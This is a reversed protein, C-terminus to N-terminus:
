SSIRHFSFPSALVTLYLYARYFVWFNILWEFFYFSSSFFSTGCLNWEMQACCCKTSIIQWITSPLIRKDCMTFCKKKAQGVLEVCNNAKRDFYFICSKIQSGICIAIHKLTKIIWNKNCIKM